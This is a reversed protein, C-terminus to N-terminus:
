CQRLPIVYLPTIDKPDAGIPICHPCTNNAGEGWRKSTGHTIRWGADHAFRAAKEAGKHPTDLMDDCYACTFGYSGKM